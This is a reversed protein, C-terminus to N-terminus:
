DGFAYYTASTTWSGGEAVRNISWTFEHAGPTALAGGKSHVPPTESGPCWNARPAKVSEIAGCPNEACYDRSGRKAITCLTACDRRWVSKAALAVGDVAWTHSRRCFEDAPGICSSDGPDPAGGGHGSTRVELRGSTTGAPAVFGVQPIGDATSTRTDLLSVVSLVKRPAPGPTVELHASVNWGGDSGSVKGAGDSWTEIHTTFTHKGPLGNALDTLDIERHLPGGFPTIAHMIEFGVPAATVPPPRTGGDASADPAAGDPSADAVAADAPAGADVPPAPPPPPPVDLHIDFNRDFADCDAPWSQGTPPKSAKEFPFCKSTLDVVLKVSAFPGAGFDVASVARHFNPKDSKSQIRVDDHVTVI